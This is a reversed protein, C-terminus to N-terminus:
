QIHQKTKMRVTGKGYLYISNKFVNFIFYEFNSRLTQLPRLAVTQDQASMFM